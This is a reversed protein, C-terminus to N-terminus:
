LVFRYEILHDVPDLTFGLDMYLEAAEESDGFTWLDIPGEGVNNQLWHMTTLVLPRQLELQRLAPVVGPSDVVKRPRGSDAEDEPHNFTKGFCVGAIEDDPTFAIFISQRNFHEPSDRFGDAMRKADVAHPDNEAHGWMDRYCRNTAEALLALDNVEAFSKVYFGEPWAPKPLSIEAASKFFRNNGVPEFGQSALFDHSAHQTARRGGVVHNAGHEKARNLLKPMLMAGIGRRRWAPHVAIFAITRLTSQAFVWAYAILQETNGPEHVLWRDKTPDHGRWELTDQLGQRSVDNGTPEIAELDRRFQLLGDFDVEPDFLRIPWPNPDHRM